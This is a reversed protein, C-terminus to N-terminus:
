KVKRICIVGTGKVRVFLHEFVEGANKIDNLKELRLISSALYEFEDEDVEIIEIRNSALWADGACDKSILSDLLKQTEESRYKKGEFPNKALLGVPPHGSGFVSLYVKRSLNIQELDQDSLQWCSIFVGNAYHVPLDSVDKSNGLLQTNAEEFKIPIM